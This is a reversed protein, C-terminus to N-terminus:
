IIKLTELYSEANMGPILANKFDKENRTLILDCKSALASFYKMADEFIRSIPFFRKLSLKM